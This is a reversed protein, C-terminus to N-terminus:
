NKPKPKWIVSDSWLQEYQSKYFEFWKNDKEKTLLFHPREGLARKYAYIEINMFGTDKEPDFAALGFPLFVDSLRVECKGKSTEMQVLIGLINLIQEIDGEVTRVKNISNWVQLAPSQPSLLLFRLRCGDKMKQEFFDLHITVSVLSVGVIVIESAYKGREQFSPIESRGRLVPTSSIAIKQLHEEIIHRTLLSSVAILGLVALTIPAILTQPAIGLLNLLTLGIAIIVTLYLDINEGHRIDDWIRRIIRM